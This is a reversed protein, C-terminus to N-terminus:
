NTEELVLVQDANILRVNMGMKVAAQLIYKNLYNYREYFGNLCEIDRQCTDMYYQCENISMEIRIIEDASLVKKQEVCRTWQLKCVLLASSCKRWEEAIDFSAM